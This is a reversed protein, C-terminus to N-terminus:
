LITSQGSSRAKGSGFMLTSDDDEDHETLNEEEVGDHVSINPDPFALDDPCDVM